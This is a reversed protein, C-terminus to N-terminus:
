VPELELIVDGEELDDQDAPRITVVKAKAGDYRIRSYTKMVELMCVPQGADIIAGVVVFPDKDPDPRSYFRGSSPSRFLMANAGVAGDSDGAVALSAELGTGVNPDLALLVDGFGVPRARLRGRSDDGGSVIRGAGGAGLSVPVRRGLIEFHGVDSQPGVIEGDGLDSV